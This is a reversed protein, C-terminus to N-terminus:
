ERDLSPDAYANLPDGGRAVRALSLSMTGPLSDPSLLALTRLQQELVERTECCVVEL